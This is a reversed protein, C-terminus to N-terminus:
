KDIGYEQIYYPHGPTEERAMHLMFMIGSVLVMIIGFDMGYEIQDLAAEGLEFINQALFHIVSFSFSLVGGILGIMCAHLHDTYHELVVSSDKHHELNSKSMKIFVAASWLYLASAGCVLSDTAIMAIDM